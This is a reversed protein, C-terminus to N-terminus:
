EVATEKTQRSDGELKLAAFQKEDLQRGQAYTLLRDLVGSMHQLHFGTSAAGSPKKWLLENPFDELLENAEEKAQLVAHAVPQLLSPINEVPGRLWAEPLKEKAM